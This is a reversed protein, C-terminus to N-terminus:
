NNSYNDVNSVCFCMCACTSNELSHIIVRFVVGTDTNRQELFRAQVALHSSNVLWFDGAGGFHYSEDDFTTVHPDGYIAAAPLCLYVCTFLVCM